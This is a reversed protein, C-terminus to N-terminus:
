KVIRKIVLGRKVSEKVESVVQEVTMQYDIKRTNRFTLEYRGKTETYEDYRYGLDSLSRQYIWRFTRDENEVIIKKPLQKQIKNIQNMYYM